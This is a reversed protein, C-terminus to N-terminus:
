QGGQSNRILQAIFPGYVEPRAGADIAFIINQAVKPNTLLASTVRKLAAATVAGAGAGIEWPVGAGHALAGGVTAGSLPVSFAQAVHKVATNIKPNYTSDGTLQALRYLNDLRDKGIAQQLRQRGVQREVGKLGQALSDGKIALYTGSRVSGLTAREVAQHVRDFIKSDAFAQNAAKYDGPSIADQHEEFLSQLGNEAEELKAPAGPASMDRLAASRQTRLKNFQGGSLENLQDYVPLVAGQVRESAEGFDQAGQMATKADVPQLTPPKLKGTPEGQVGGPGAEMEPAAQRTANVRELSEEGANRAAAGVTALAQAQRPAPTVNKAAAPVENEVGEITQAGPQAAVLRDALKGGVGAVAGSLLGSGAATEAGEALGEGVDGTKATGQVAGVVGQKAVDAAIQATRQGAQSSFFSALRPYREALKMLPVAQKLRDALSLAKAGGELAEQGGMFELVGELVGGASEAIGQNPEDGISQIATDVQGPQSTDGTIKRGVNLLGTYSQAAGRAVGRVIGRNMDIVPNGTDPLIESMKPSANVKPMATQIRRAEHMNAPLGGIAVAAQLQSSRIWKPKSGQPESPDFMLYAQEGGIQTAQDVKDADIWKPKMGVPESPDFMPVPNAPAPPPAVAQDPNPITAPTM